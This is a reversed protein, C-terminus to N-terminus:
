YVFIPSSRDQVQLGVWRRFIPTVNFDLKPPREPDNFIAGITLDYVVKYQDATAVIASDQVM